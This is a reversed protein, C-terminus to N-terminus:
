QTPISNAKATVKSVIIAGIAIALAAFIAILIVMEVTINGRQDERRRDLCATTRTYLYTAILTLNEM